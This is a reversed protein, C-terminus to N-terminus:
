PAGGNGQGARTGPRPLDEYLLNRLDRLSHQYDRANVMATGDTFEAILSDTQENREFNFTSFGGEQKTAGVLRVGKARLYAGFYLDKVLLMEYTGKMNDGDKGDLNKSM